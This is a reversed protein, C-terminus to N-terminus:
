AQVLDISLILSYPTDDRTLCILRTRTRVCDTAYLIIISWRAPCRARWRMFWTMILAAFTLAFVLIFVMGEMRAAMNLFDELSCLSDPSKRPFRRRIVPFRRRIVPFRRRIVPFWVFQASDYSDNQSDLFWNSDGHIKLFRHILTQKNPSEPIMNIFIYTTSGETIPTFHQSFTVLLLLTCSFVPLAVLLCPYLVRVQLSM